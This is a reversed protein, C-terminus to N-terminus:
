SGLRGQLIARRKAIRGLERECARASKADSRNLKQIDAACVRNAAKVARDRLRVTQQALRGLLRRHHGADRTIKKEARDLARLEAKYNKTMNM